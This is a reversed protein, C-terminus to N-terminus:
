RADLDYSEWGAVKELWQGCEKLKRQDRPLQGDQCQEIWLNAAMEYHACPDTWTDRLNGKFEAWEHSLIETQLIEKAEDFRKLNRLTAARLLALVAHEDLGELKWNDNEVSESWALRALSDEFHEARMRKYGNWFYIMEEIPSVGVADVLDVGRESARHEWKQVKRNVFVDFPLQRAMFRKKGPQKPVLRLLEEAKAKHQTARAADRGKHLRYLEVQAAGAIYYYLAHSWNNLTVCKQFSAACEEYNHAYMSDLSREFWMLAEVQKLPSTESKMLIAVAREPQKDGALLRAEELLWLHSKPYRRRMEALLANCRERPYAGPGSPPLIDCMGMLSNYYGLIILGAMGGNINDIRSAQWLMQIGKERDGRFGVIKLLTAFAPPILSIMLQLIGFCLNSGSHIFTDVPHGNFLEVDPGDQVAPESSQKQPQSPVSSANVAPQASISPKEAHRIEGDIELEGLYEATEEVGEHIEDADFFEDGEEDRSPEVNAFDGAPPASLTQSDEVSKTSGLSDQSNRATSDVSNMSRSRVFKAEAQSISDLTQFAKRLKYFGKISETLSENLVGVVASMLQAEALCLAFESGAPYISSQFAKPNRQARRYHESAAAEADALRESAERMVDQEFGLTARMFIVVGQCLKHFSSSGKSLEAEATEVDDNM